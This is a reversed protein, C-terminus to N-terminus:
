RLALKTIAEFLKEVPYGKILSSHAGSKRALQQKQITNTLVLCLTQSTEAQIQALIALWDKSDSSANTDLIVLAPQFRNVMEIVKTSDETQGVINIWPRSELLFRLSDRIPDSKAVILVSVPDV